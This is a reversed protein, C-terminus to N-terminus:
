ATLYNFTIRRISGLSPSALGAKTLVYMSIVCNIKDEFLEGNRKEVSLEVETYPKFMEAERIVKTIEMAKIRKIPIKGNAEFPLETSWFDRPAVNSFDRLCLQVFGQPVLLSDFGRREILAM